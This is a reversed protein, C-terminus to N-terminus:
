EGVTVYRYDDGTKQTGYVVEKCLRDLPAQDTLYNDSVDLRTLHAFAAKHAVLHATGADTMMGMSLDLTQLRPLIEATALAAAIDDTFECNMLGLHKVKPLNAGELLPLLDAVACNCGYNDSGFWLILTELAPFKGSAIAQVVKQDLGGTHLELHKLEPADIAAGLDIESGQLVLRELNQLAGFVASVDGVPNWSMENEDPYEFDALFLSRISPRPAECLAAVVESYDTDGDDNNLGFVLDRLFQGSPHDLLSRTIEGLDVEGDEHSFSSYALRASRIFGLHWGFAPRDNGDYTKQHPALPGLLFREHKKLLAGAAKVLDPLGPAARLANHVAVLEGRPHGQSQLWDGYVLYSQVDDPDALIARALEPNRPEEPAEEDDGEEDGDGEVLEYGKKTKEAVLKDYAKRAEAESKFSKETTQGDTGMKGYRTTFSTGELTIEWFKNSTGESFEYRPM